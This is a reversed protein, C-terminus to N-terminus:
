GIEEAAYILDNGAGGNIVDNGIGSLVVDDGALANIATNGNNGLLMDKDATGTIVEGSPAFPPKVVVSTSGDPNALLVENSYEMTVDAMNLTSGDAMAVQGIGHVTQGNIVSFQGDSTLAVAAIGMEDLSKFEGADTIGNQNTDQWVGFKSWNEDLGSFIGDNNTDFAKLGQVMKAVLSSISTSSIQSSSCVAGPALNGFAKESPSTSRRCMSATKFIVAHFRSSAARTRPMSRPASCPLICSYLM